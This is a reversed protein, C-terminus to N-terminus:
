LEHVFILPNHATAPRVKYVVARINKDKWHHEGAKIVLRRGM